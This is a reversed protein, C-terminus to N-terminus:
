TTFTLGGPTEIIRTKYSVKENPKDPIPIKVETYRLEENKLEFARGIDNFNKEYMIMNIDYNQFCMAILQCGYNKAVAISYNSSTPGVDPLVITMHRKNYEKLESIDNAFKIGYSFRLKRMSESNSSINVYEKLKTDLYTPNSKDVIIIIKDKFSSLAENSVDVREYSYKSNLLRKGLKEQLVTAMKDYIQKNNSMIRLHILLPDNPCPSMGGSFAYNNIIDMANSFEVINYTEKITINEISSAAIVPENDLSYIEFDLCRAGQKICNKLSCINVYDNKFEGACCANYATKIFYDRLKYGYINSSFDINTLPANNKYEYNMNSCNVDNLNLKTYFYFFLMTFIIISIMIGIYDMLTINYSTSIVNKLKETVENINDM